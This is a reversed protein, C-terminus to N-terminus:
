SQLFGVTGCLALLFLNMKERPQHLTILNLLSNAMSPKRRSWDIRRMGKLQARNCNGIM